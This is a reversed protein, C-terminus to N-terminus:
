QKETSEKQKWHKQTQRHGEVPSLRQRHRPVGLPQTADAVVALEAPVDTDVKRLSNQYRYCASFWSM